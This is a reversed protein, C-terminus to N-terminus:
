KVAAVTGLRLGATVVVSATAILLVLLLWSGAVPLPSWATFASWSSAVSAGQEGWYGRFAKWLVSGSLFLATTAVFLPLWHKWRGLIWAMGIVSVTLFALLSGFLYRGQVGSIIGYQDYASWVKPLLAAINLPLVLFLVVLKLRQGAASAIAVLGLLVLAVIWVLAWTSGHGFALNGTGAHWVTTVALPRMIGSLLNGLTPDWEAGRPVLVGDLGGVTPNPFLAGESIFRVAFFWAGTLSAAGCLILRRAAITWRPPKALLYAPVVLLPLLLGFAKTFTAGAISLGLLGATTRTLDGQMVRVALYTAVWALLTALNDNNITGGIFALQPALLPLFSAAIATSGPRLLSMTLYAIAPLPAVILVSVLRLFLVTRDWSWWARPTVSAVATLATASLVYYGPPHQTMQNEFDTPAMSGFEELRPRDPRPTASEATLHTATSPEYLGATSAAVNLRESLYLSDFDPYGAEVRLAEIMDAHLVEDPARGFPIVVSWAATLSIWLATALWVVM